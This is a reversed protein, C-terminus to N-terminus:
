LKLQPPPPPSVSVKEFILCKKGKEDNKPLNELFKNMQAIFAILNFLFLFFIRFM